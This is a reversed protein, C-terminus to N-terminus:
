LVHGERTMMVNMNEIIIIMIVPIIKSWTNWYNNNRTDRGSIVKM